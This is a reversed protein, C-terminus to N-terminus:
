YLISNLSTQLLEPYKLELFAFIREQIETLDSQRDLCISLHGGDIETILQYFNGYAILLFRLGGCDINGRQKALTLLTPNVLLEEYKDSEESSSDATQQKARLFLDQWSYIAAYRIESFSTFLDEIMQNKNHMTSINESDLSTIERTM